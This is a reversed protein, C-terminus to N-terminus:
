TTKRVLTFNDLHQPVRVTSASHLEVLGNVLYASYTLRSLPVFPRWKLIKRLPGSFNFNRKLYFRSVTQDRHEILMSILIEAATIKYFIPRVGFNM